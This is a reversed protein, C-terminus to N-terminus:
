ARQSDLDNQYNIPTMIFSTALAVSMKTKLRSILSQKSESQEVM